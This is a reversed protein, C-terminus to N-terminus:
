LPAGVPGADTVRGKISLDRTGPIVYANSVAPDNVVQVNLGSVNIEIYTTAKPWNWPSGM